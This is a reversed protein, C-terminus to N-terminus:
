QASRRRRLPVCLDREAALMHAAKDQGNVTCEITVDHTAKVSQETNIEDRSEGGDGGEIVDERGALNGGPRPLFRRPPADPNPLM